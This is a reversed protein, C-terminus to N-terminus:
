GPVNRSSATPESASRSAEDQVPVERNVNVGRLTKAVCTQVLASGNPRPERGPGMSTWFSCSWPECGSGQRVAQQRLRIRGASPPRHLWCGWSEAPRTTNRAAAASTAKVGHRQAKRTPTAAATNLRRANTMTPATSPQKIYRRRDPEHTGPHHNDSEDNYTHSPGEPSDAGIASLAVGSELQALLESLDPVTATPSTRGPDTLGHSSLGCYRLFSFPLHPTGRIRPVAAPTRRRQGGRASGCGATDAAAVSATAPRRRSTPHLWRRWAQRIQRGLRQRLRARVDTM